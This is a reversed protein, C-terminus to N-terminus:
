EGPFRGEDEPEVFNPDVTRPRRVRRKGGFDWTLYTGVVQRNYRYQDIDNDVIFVAGAVDLSLRNWVPINVNITIEHVDSKPVTGRDSQSSECPGNSTCVSGNDFELYRFRYLGSVEVDNWPLYVGAGIEALFGSHAFESGKTDLLTWGFGLRLHSMPDPPIFSQNIGLTHRWGDIDFAPQTLSEYYDGHQARYYGQTVGFRGVRVAVSPVITHLSRLSDTFDLLTFSGDYRLSTRVNRYDLQALARAVHTQQDIGDVDAHKSLYGDYGVRVTAGGGRYADYLGRIGFSGAVDPDEELIKPQITPNSDFEFGATASVTWRQEPTEPEMAIRLNRASRGLPHAPSGEAVETFAQASAYLDGLVVQTLGAYYRAERELNPDLSTAREFHRVAEPFYRLRYEAIGKYLHLRAHQPALTLAVRLTEQAPVNQQAKLQTEGLAMYTLVDTPALQLARTFLEIAEEDRDEHRSILGLYRLVTPDDPNGELFSEFAERAAGFERAGYAAVGQQFRLEGKADAAAPPSHAICLLLVLPLVAAVFLRVRGRPHSM